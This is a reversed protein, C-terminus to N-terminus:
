GGTVLQNGSGDTLNDTGDTLNNTTSPLTLQITDGIYFRMFTGDSDIRTKCDVDFCFASTTTRNLRIEEHTDQQLFETATNDYNSLDGDVVFDISGGVDNYDVTILTETGGLMGGVYDEVQEQSLQTDTDVTHSLDSIDSERVTCTNNACNITKNTLTQLADTNVLTKDAVIADLESFTDIETSVIVNSTDTLQTELQAETILETETIVDTCDEAIGFSDVGQPFTGDPCNAPNVELQESQDISINDPVIADVIMNGLNIKKGTGEARDTTDSVDIIYVEDGTAPTTLENLDPVQVAYANSCLLFLLIFLIRM